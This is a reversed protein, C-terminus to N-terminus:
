FLLYQFIFCVIYIRAGAGILTYCNPCQALSRISINEISSPISLGTISSTSDIALLGKFSSWAFFNANYANSSRSVNVLAVIDVFDTVALIQVSCTAVDIECIMDGNSSSELSEKGRSCCQISNSQAICFLRNGDRSFCLSRIHKLPRQCYVLRGLKIMKGSTREVHYISSGACCYMSGNGPCRALSTIDEAVKGIRRVAGREIAAIERSGFLVFFSDVDWNLDTRSLQFPSHVSAVTERTNNNINYATNKPSVEKVLSHGSKINQNGSKTRCLLRSKTSMSVEKSVVSVNNGASRNKKYQRRQFAQTLYMMDEDSLGSLLGDLQLKREKSVFLPCDLYDEMREQEPMIHSKSLTKYIVKESYCKQLSQIGSCRSLM